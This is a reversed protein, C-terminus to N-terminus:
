LKMQQEIGLGYLVDNKTIDADISLRKKRSTEGLVIQISKKPLRLATAILKILEANAAGKEPVSTLYVRINGCADLMCKNHRAKPVVSIDLILPM